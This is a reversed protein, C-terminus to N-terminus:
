NPLTTEFEEVHEGDGVPSPIWLPDYVTIKKNKSSCLRMYLKLVLSCLLVVFNLGEYESSFHTKWFVQNLLHARKLDCM